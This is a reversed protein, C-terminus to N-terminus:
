GPCKELCRKPLQNKRGPCGQSKDRSPFHQSHANRHSQVRQALLCCSPCAGHIWGTTDECLWSHKGLIPTKKPIGVLHKGLPFFSSVGAAPHGLDMHPFSPSSFGALSPPSPILVSNKYLISFICIKITIKKKTAKKKNTQKNQIKKNNNKQKKNKKFSKFSFDGGLM